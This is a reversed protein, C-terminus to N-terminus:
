GAENAHPVPKRALGSLALDRLFRDHLQHYTVDAIFENGTKTYHLYDIYVTGQYTKLDEIPDIIGVNEAELLSRWRDRMRFNYDIQAQPRRVWPYIRKEADSMPKIGGMDGLEYEWGFAVDQGSRRAAAVIADAYSSYLRFYKEEDAVSPVAREGAYRQEATEQMAGVTSAGTAREVFKEAFKHLLAMGASADAAQRFAVELTSSLSRENVLREFELRWPHDVQIAGRGADFDGAFLAHDFNNASGYVIVVDPSWNIYEALYASSEEVIRDFNVGANIVEVNVRSFAPDARLKAALYQSITADSPVFGEEGLVAPGGIGSYLVSGGLLLVRFTNPPKTRSYSRVERFGQPSITYNGTVTPNNRVLGYPSWVYLFVSKFPRGAWSLFFVQSAAEVAFFGAVLIAIIRTWRIPRDSAAM